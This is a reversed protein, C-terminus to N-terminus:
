FAGTQKSPTLHSRSGTHAMYATPHNCQVPRFHVTLAVTMAVVCIGGVAAALTVVMWSPLVGLVKMIVQFCWWGFTTLISVTTGLVRRGVSLWYQYSTSIHLVHPREPQVPENQSSVTPNNIIAEIPVCVLWAAAEIATTFAHHVVLARAREDLNQLAMDLALVGDEIGNTTFRGVCEADLRVHHLIASSSTDAMADRGHLQHVSAFVSTASFQMLSQRPADVTVQTWPAHIYARMTLADIRQKTRWDVYLAPNKMHDCESTHLADENQDESDVSWQRRATLSYIAAAVTKECACWSPAIIAVVPVIHEAHVQRLSGGAFVTALSNISFSMPTHMVIVHHTKSHDLTSVSTMVWAASADVLEQTTQVADHVVVVIASMDYQEWDAPLGVM